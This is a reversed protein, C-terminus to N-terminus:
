PKPDIMLRPARKAQLVNGTHLDTALLVTDNTYSLERYLQIGEQALKLDPRLHLESEAESAWSEMMDSLPRFVSLPEPSRWLQQLISAIVEDQEAEPLTRLPTAHM